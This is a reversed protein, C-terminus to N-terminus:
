GDLINVYLEFVNEWSIGVMDLNFNVESWKLEKELLYDVYYFFGFLGFEEVGFVIFCIEKDFFINKLVCVMELMVFIGLGNDNVGFLFFVSDYYVM